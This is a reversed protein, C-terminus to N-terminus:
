VGKTRQFRENKQNIRKTDFYADKYVQILKDLDETNNVPEYKQFSFKSLNVAYDYTSKTVVKDPLNMQSFLFVFVFVGLGRKFQEVM